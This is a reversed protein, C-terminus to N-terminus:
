KKQEENKRKWNYNIMRLILMGLEGTGESSRSLIVIGTKTSPKFHMYAKHRETGGSHTYLSGTSKSQLIYWGYSHSLSKSVKSQKHIVQSALTTSALTNESVALNLKLLHLLDNM